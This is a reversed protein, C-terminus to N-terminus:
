YMPSQSVFLNCLKSLIICSTLSLLLLQSWIEQAGTLHILIHIIITIHYQFNFYICFHVWFLLWIITFLMEHPGCQWSTLARCTQKLKLPFTSYIYVWLHLVRSPTSNLLNTPGPLSKLIFKDSLWMKFFFKLPRNMPPPIRKVTIASEKSSKLGRSNCLQETCCM